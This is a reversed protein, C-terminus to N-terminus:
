SATCAKTHGKWLGEAKATNGWFEGCAWPGGLNQVQDCAEQSMPNVKSQREELQDTEFNQRKHKEKKERGPPVM